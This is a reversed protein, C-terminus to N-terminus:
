PVLGGTRVGTWIIMDYFAICDVWGDYSEVRWCRSNLHIGSIWEDICRNLMEEGKFCGFM